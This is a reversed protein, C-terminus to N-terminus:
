RQPWSPMGSNARDLSPSESVAGPRVTALPEPRVYELYNPMKGDVHGEQIAWRAQGELGRILSQRLEIAFRMDKMARDITRGDLGLREQLIRRSEDPHEAIYATARDLAHCLKELDADRPGVGMHGIRRPDLEHRRHVRRRVRDAGRDRAEVLRCRHPDVEEQEAIARGDILNTM